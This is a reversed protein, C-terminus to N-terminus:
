TGCGSAYDCQSLLSGRVSYCPIHLRTCRSLSDLRMMELSLRFSFPPPAYSSSSLFLFLLFGRWSILLSFLSSDVLALHCVLVLPDTALVLYILLAYVVRPCYRVLTRCQGAIPWQFRYIELTLYDNYPLTATISLPSPFFLVGSRTDADACCGQALQPLSIAGLRLSLHSDLSVWLYPPSQPFPSLVSNTLRAAYESLALFAPLLFAAASSLFESASHSLPLDALALSTFRMVDSGLVTQFRWGFAEAFPPCLVPLSAQQSRTRPLDTALIKCSSELRFSAAVSSPRTSPAFGTLAPLPKWHSSPTAVLKFQGSALLLVVVGETPLSLLFREGTLSWRGLASPSILIVKIAGPREEAIEGTKLLISDRKRQRSPLPSRGQPCWYARLNHKLIKTGTMPM